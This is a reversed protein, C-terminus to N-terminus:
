NISIARHARRVEFRALRGSRALRENGVHAIRHNAAAGNNFGELRKATANEIEIASQLMGSKRLKRLPRSYALIKLLDSRTNAAITFRRLRAVFFFRRLDLMKQHRKRQM